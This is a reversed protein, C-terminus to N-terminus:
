CENAKASGYTSYKDCDNKNLLTVLAMAWRKTAVIDGEILGRAVMVVDCSVESTEQLPRTHGRM